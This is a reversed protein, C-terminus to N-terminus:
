DISSQESVPKKPFENWGERAGRASCRYKQLPLLKKLKKGFESSPEHKIGEKGCLISYRLYVEEENVKKGSTDPLNFEIGVFESM